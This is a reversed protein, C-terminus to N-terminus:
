LSAWYKNGLPLKVQPLFAETDSEPLINKKALQDLVPM